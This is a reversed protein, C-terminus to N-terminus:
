KSHKKKKRWTQSKKKEEGGKKGRKTSIEWESEGSPLCYWFGQITAFINKHEKGGGGGKRHDKLALSTIIKTFMTCRQVTKGEKLTRRGNGPESRRWDKGEERQKEEGLSYSQDRKKRWECRVRKNPSNVGTVTQQAESRTFQDGQAMTQATKM